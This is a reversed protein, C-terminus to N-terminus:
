FEWESGGKEGEKKEGEKKEGERKEGEHKEGEGRALVTLYRIRPHEDFYAGIEVRDGPRLKELLSTEHRSPQWNGGEKPNLGPAKLEWQAFFLMPEGVTARMVGHRRDKWQANGDAKEVKVKIVGRERGLFVGTIVAQAQGESFVLKQGVVEGGTGEGERKEGEKKEGERKEGEKKESMAWDRQEKTLELLGFYDRELNRIEITIEQNVELKRLFHIHERVPRMKGGEGRAFGPGVRITLGALKAPEKAKSGEWTRLVTGVKFLIGREPKAVV